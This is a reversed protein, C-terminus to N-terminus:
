TWGVNITISWQVFYNPRAQALGVHDTLRHDQRDTQGVYM